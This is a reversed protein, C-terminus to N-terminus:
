DRHSGVTTERDEYADVADDLEQWAVEIAEKGQTRVLRLAADIVKQNVWAHSQTDKTLLFEDIRRVIELDDAPQGRCEDYWGAVEKRAERLLEQALGIEDRMRQSDAMLGTIDVAPPSPNGIAGLPDCLQCQQQAVNIGHQCNVRTGIM